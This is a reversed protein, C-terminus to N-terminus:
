HGNREKRERLLTALNTTLPFLLELKETAYVAFEADTKKSESYEAEILKALAFM